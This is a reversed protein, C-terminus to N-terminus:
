LIRKKIFAKPKSEPMEDIRVGNETRYCPDQEIALSILDHLKREQMAQIEDSTLPIYSNSM